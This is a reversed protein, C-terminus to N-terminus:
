SCGFFTVMVQRNRLMMVVVAFVINIIIIIIIIDLIYKRSCMNLFSRNSTGVGVNIANLIM